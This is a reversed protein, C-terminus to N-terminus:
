EERLVAIIDEDNLLRYELEGTKLRDANLIDERWTVGGYRAFVVRDGVACWPRGDGYDQWATPGIALVIGKMTAQRELAQVTKPIYISGRKEEAEEIQIVVRHGAPELRM